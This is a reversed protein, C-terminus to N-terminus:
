SVLVIVTKIQRFVPTLLPISSLGTALPSPPATVPRKALLISVCVMEISDNLIYMTQQKSNTVNGRVYM